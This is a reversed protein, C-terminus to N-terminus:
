ELEVQDVNFWGSRSVEWIDDVSFQLERIVKLDLISPNKLADKEPQYPSAFFGGEDTNIPITYHVWNTDKMEFSKQSLFLEGEADKIGIKIANDRGDGKLYFSVSKYQSWDNKNSPVAINCYMWAGNKGSKLDYDVRISGPGQVFDKKDITIESKSDISAGSKWIYSSDCTSLLNQSKPEAAAYSLQMSLLIVGGVLIGFLVVKGIRLM